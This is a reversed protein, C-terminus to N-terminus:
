CVAAAHSLAATVKFNREVIVRLRENEPLAAPAMATAGARRGGGEEKHRGEKSLIASLSASDSGDAVKQQVKHSAPLVHTLSISLSTPFFFLNDAGSDDEPGGEPEESLKPCRRLVLLGFAKFDMLMQWQEKPVSVVQIGEGVECFGLRFLCNFVAATSMGRSRCTRLYESVFIWLQSPHVCACPLFFLPPHSTGGLVKRPEAIGGNVQEKFNKLAFEYGKRTIHVPTRGGGEKVKQEMVMAETDDDQGEIELELGGGEAMLGTGLLLQRVASPPAKSRKSGVQLCWALFFSFGLPFAIVRSCPTLSTVFM